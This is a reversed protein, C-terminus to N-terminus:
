SMAPLADSSTSESQLVTVEEAFCRRLTGTVAENGLLRGWDEVALHSTILTSRRGCRQEILRVLADAEESALAEGGLDRVILLDNVDLERYARGLESTHRAKVLERALEVATPLRVRHGARLLAEAIAKAGRSGTPGDAVIVANEAQELFEDTFLGRVGPRLAAPLSDVDVPTADPSLGALRWNLALRDPQGERLTLRWLRHMWLWLAPARRIREELPELYRRTM